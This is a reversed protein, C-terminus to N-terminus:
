KKKFRKLEKGTDFLGNDITGKYTKCLDIYREMAEWHEKELGDHYKDLFRDIRGFSMKTHVFVSKHVGKHPTKSLMVIQINNQKHEDLIVDAVDFTTLKKIGNKFCYRVYIDCLDFLTFLPGHHMEVKIKDSKTLGLIACRNLGLANLEGIYSTYRDEARIMEECGKIFSEHAEYDNKLFAETAEFQLSFNGCDSLITIADSM